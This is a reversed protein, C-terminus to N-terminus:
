SILLKKTTLFSWIQLEARNWEDLTIDHLNNNIAFHDDVTLMCAINIQSNIQYIALMRDAGIQDKGELGVYLINSLSRSIGIVKIEVSVTWTKHLVSITDYLRDKRVVISGNTYVEHIPELIFNIKPAM